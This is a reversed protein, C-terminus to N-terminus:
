VTALYFSSIFEKISSSPDDSLSVHFNSKGVNEPHKLPVSTSNSALMVSHNHHMFSHM